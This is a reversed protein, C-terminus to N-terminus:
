YRRALTGRRQHNRGLQEHFGRPVPHNRDERENRRMPRSSRATFQFIHHTLANM